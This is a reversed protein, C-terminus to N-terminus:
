GQTYEITAALNAMSSGSSFFLGFPVSNDYQRTLGNETIDGMYRRVPSYVPVTLLVRFLILHATGSTWTADQQYTQISRVGTDGAQLAFIYTAGASTTSLSATVANSSRGATGAQNTYGLSIVPTGSGATGSTVVLAAYVGSGNSSENDDRAAMTVSNITQSTTITLSLGSNHWLLDGLLFIGTSQSVVNVAKIYTNASAPPIPIQGTFSTVAAGSLGAANPTANAPLGGGVYLLNQPRITTGIASTPKVLYENEVQGSEIGALTTIAM